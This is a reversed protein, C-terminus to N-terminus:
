QGHREGGNTIRLAGARKLFEGGERTHRLLYDAATRRGAVEPDAPDAVLVGIGRRPSREFRTRMRSTMASVCRRSTRGISGSLTSCTCCVGARTSELNPQIEFLMKGPTVAALTARGLMAVRWQCLEGLVLSCSRRAHADPNAFRRVSADHGATPPLEIGPTPTSVVFM